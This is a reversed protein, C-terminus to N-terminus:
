GVSPVGPDVGFHERVLARRSEFLAEADLGCRECLAAIKSAQEDFSALQDPTAGKGVQDAVYLLVAQELRDETGCLASLDDATLARLDAHHRVHFVVDEPVGREELWKAGEAEHDWFSYREKGDDGPTVAHRALIKGVDHLLLTAGADRWDVDLSSALSRAAAVAVATHELISLSHWRPSHTAADRLMEPLGPVEGAKVAEDFLRRPGAGRAVEDRDVDAVALRLALVSPAAKPGVDLGLYASLELVAEAEKLFFPLAALTYRAVREIEAKTVRGDADGWLSDVELALRRLPEPLRRLAETLTSLAGRESAMTAARELVDVRGDEEPVSGAAGRVVEKKVDDRIAKLEQASVKGDADGALDAAGLLRRMGLSSPGKVTTM